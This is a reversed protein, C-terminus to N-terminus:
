RQFIRLFDRAEELGLLLVCIAYVGGGLIVLGGVMLVEGIFSQSAPLLGLAGHVSMGMILGAGLMKAVPKILGNYDWPAVRRGLLYFLLGANVGAALSNALALGGHGWLPMFLLSFVVNSIIAVLGVIAPTRLNGMSYYSRTLLYIIGLFWLGLCFFLLAEATLATNTPTFEGRQFLLRIVPERIALLGIAAPIMTFSILRLSGTLNDKFGQWDTRAAKEAMAPFAATAVAAAFVGLPLNMVRHAYDLAAISGEALSSAFFRNTALAIQNVAMAFTVPLIAVAVQRVRPHQWALSWGLRFELCKLGPLQILLFGMFGILTGIALGKVGYSTGMFFVAGIVTINALAPAFAPLAFKKHTNLVGTLMLGLGMFVISPLMIRTLEVTLATEEANFGPAMIGVLGPALIIGLVTILLLVLGVSNIVSSVVMAGEEKKGQVLYNTLVPVVVTVFSVGLVAQLAYPIAYALLYAETVSGGGFKWAITADRAFGLIRSLLNLLLIILTARLM